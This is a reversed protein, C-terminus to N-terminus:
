GDGLLDSRSPIASVVPLSKESLADLCLDIVSGLRLVILFSIYAPQAHATREAKIPGLGLAM